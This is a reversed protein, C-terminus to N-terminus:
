NQPGFFFSKNCLSKIHPKSGMGGSYTAGSASAELQLVSGRVRVSVCVSGRRVSLCANGRVCMFM